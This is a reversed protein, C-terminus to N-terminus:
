NADRYPLYVSEQSPDLALSLQSGIAPKRPEVISDTQIVYKGGGCEFGLLFCFLFREPEQELENMHRGLWFKRSWAARQKRATVAAVNQSEPQFDECRSKDIPHWSFNHLKPLYVDSWCLNKRRFLEYVWDSGQWCMEANRRQHMSVPEKWRDLKQGKGGEGVELIAGRM